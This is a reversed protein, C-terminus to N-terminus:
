QKNLTWLALLVLLLLPPFFFLVVLWRRGSSLPESRSLPIEPRYSLVPPAAAPPASKNTRDDAM